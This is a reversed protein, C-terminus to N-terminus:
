CGAAKNVDAEFTLRRVLEPPFGQERPFRSCPKMEGRSTSYWLAYAEDHEVARERYIGMVEHLVAGESAGARDLAYVRYTGPELQEAAELLM